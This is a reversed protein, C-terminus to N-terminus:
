SLRVHLWKSIMKVVLWLEKWMAGYLSPFCVLSHALITRYENFSLLNKKEKISFDEWVQSDLCKTEM